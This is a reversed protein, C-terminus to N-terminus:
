PDFVKQRVPSCASYQSRFTIESVCRQALRVVYSCLRRRVVLRVGDIPKFSIPDQYQIPIGRADRNESISIQSRPMCEVGALPLMAPLRTPM